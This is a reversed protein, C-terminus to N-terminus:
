LRQVKLAASLFTSESLFIMTNERRKIFLRVKRGGESHWVERSEMLELDMHKGPM